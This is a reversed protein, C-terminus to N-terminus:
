MIQQSTTLYYLMINLVFMETVLRLVTFRCIFIIRLVWYSLDINKRSIVDLKQIHQVDATKM